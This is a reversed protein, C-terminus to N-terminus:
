NKKLRGSIAILFFLASIFGSWRAIYDGYQTYFTIRVEPTFKGRLVGKGEYPLKNTIEGKSNIIASIGTNASRVVNRRNEIARLRAYSLLQKHGPTNGWWADNTIIALFHAGKRVYETVFEGYISEYCIIPGTKLKIKKHEFVSRNQQIGRSSVTGGLDLLFDGLLPRLFNKYPMNEVGVVLKSKHYFEPEQQHEMKLASNYFDVWVGDRIFNATLTPAKNTKYVSYSQIGSILQIDRNKELLSDIKRYLPTTKFEKLAAGFGASFYTEPTFIYHTEDTIQDATMDAMLDFYYNNKNDYKENYPDINPQLLLVETSPIPDKESQYLMLSIAIPVAIGVLWPGMKKVWLSNKLSPPHNKFVEFLGINILLVWLTGGFSGTFEYWQIWRINESFVNGLNLWPWSFDWKLHFKEFTIWLTVLFIYATRLPLRKKSWHFLTILIAYFSTNCLIAFVMGFVSSNVIWWTTGINWVLFGLYSLAFLKLKKRKSNGNTIQHEVFFLPILSFFIIFSLGDVPWSLTLLVGSIISLLAPKKYFIM